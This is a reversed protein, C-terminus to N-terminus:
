IQEGKSLVKGDEVHMVEGEWFFCFFNVRALMILVLVVVGM